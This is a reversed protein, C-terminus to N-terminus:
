KQRRRLALGAVGLLLLLGSTPEPVSVAEWSVSGQGSSKGGLTKSLDATPNTSLPNGSSNTGVSTKNAAYWDVTGDGNSDWASIVLGYYTKDGTVDTAPQNVQVGTLGSGTNSYTAKGLLTDVTTDGYSSWIDSVAIAAYKQAATKGGLVEPADDKLIFVCLSFNESAVDSGNPKIGTGSKWTIAAAQSAVAACVIAASIILKKM